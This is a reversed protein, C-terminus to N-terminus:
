KVALQMIVRAVLDYLHPMLVGLGLLGGGVGV